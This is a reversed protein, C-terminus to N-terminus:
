RRNSIKLNSYYFPKRPTKIAGGHILVEACPAKYTAAEAAVYVEGFRRPKLGQLGRSGEVVAEEAEDYLFPL